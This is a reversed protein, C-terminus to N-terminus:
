HHVSDYMDTKSIPYIMVHVSFILYALINCVNTFVRNISLLKCNSRAIAHSVSM